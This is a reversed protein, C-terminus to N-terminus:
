FSFTRGVEVRGPAAGVQLDRVVPVDSWITALLLGSVAIGVGVGGIASVSDCTPVDFIYATDADEGCVRGVQTALLTVGGAMMAVGAWTREMSRVREPESQLTRARSLAAELFTETNSPIEEAAAIFPVAVALCFVIAIRTM